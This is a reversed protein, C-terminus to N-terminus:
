NDLLITPCSKLSMIFCVKSPPYRVKYPDINLVRAQSTYKAPMFIWHFSQTFAEVVTIGGWSSDQMSFQPSIPSYSTAFIAEM